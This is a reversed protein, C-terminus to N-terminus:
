LGIENDTAKLVLGQEDIKFYIHSNVASQDKKETFSNLNSIYKELVQRKITFKM